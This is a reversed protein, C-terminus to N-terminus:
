VPQENPTLLFLLTKKLLIWEAFHRQFGPVGADQRRTAGSNAAYQKAHKAEKKGQGPRRGSPSLVTIPRKEFGERGREGGRLVPASLSCSDFGGNERSTQRCHGPPIL